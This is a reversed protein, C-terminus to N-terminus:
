FLHGDEIRSPVLIPVISASIEGVIVTFDAKVGRQPAAGAMSIGELLSQIYTSKVAYNVNQPISGTLRFMTADDLRSVVIGVVNGALDMLPGGSNGPQIAVSIQYHRLDDQIGSLACIEGKSMKPQSGQIDAQPYGFTFVSEGLKVTSSPRLPLPYSKADIKLAAIDNGRDIALVKAPHKEGGNWVFINSDKPLVHAATLFVGDTSIFFGTGAIMLDSEIRKEEKGRSLYKRVNRKEQEDAREKIRKAYKATLDQAQTIQDPTMKELLFDRLKTVSPNGQISALNYFAYAKIYDQPVGAGQEYSIGLSCQGAVNGQEAALRSWKVSEKYDQPVGRGLNYCAGMCAQADANGQEAALRYWKVTETDDQSVGKGSAYCGGLKKQADANGQEAALRLWKVAEKYDQPIGYGWYYAVGLRGQAEANGQEAARRYWKVAENSNEPVGDGKAYCFGLRGQAEAEGQEAALRYWKVAEKYDQPVGEGMYYCCGLYTQAGANGREAEQRLTSLDDGCSSFPLYLLGVVLVVLLNKCKMKM